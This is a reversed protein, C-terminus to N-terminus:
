QRMKKTNKPTYNDKWHIGINLLQIEMNRISKGGFVTIHKNWEKTPLKIENTDYVKEEKRDHKKKGRLTNVIDWLKKHGKEKKIINTIKREYKNIEEKIIRQTKYKKYKRGLVERKCKDPENRRETNYKKRISIKKVWWVM